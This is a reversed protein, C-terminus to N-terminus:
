MLETVLRRFTRMEPDKAENATFFRRLEVNVPKGRKWKLYSGAIWLDRDLETYPASLGAAARLMDIGDVFDLYKRKDSLKLRGRGFHLKLM